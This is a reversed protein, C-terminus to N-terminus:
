DDMLKQVAGKTYFNEKIGCIVPRIQKTKVLYSLNQRSCELKECTQFSNLINRNVFQYFDGASIPIIWEEKRLDTKAIEISDNFVISYGGVGIKVTRIIDENRLLSEVKKNKKAIQKLDVKSVMQDRFLCIIQGDESPFCELVNTLKRKRIQDSVESKPIESLFCADQSCRGESLSLLARENYERLNANKLILGINQRGSPIVRERVWLLSIDKLVTYIGKNILGQFLLPAEWENLDECIEIIYANAKEYCYLYGVPETRELEEDHIAYVRM